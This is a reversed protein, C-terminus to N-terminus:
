HKCKLCEKRSIRYIRYYNQNSQKYTVRYFNLRKGKMCLFSDKESDYTFGKKLAHNHMERLCCYDTIGLMEFGRHIAGVDYGADLAIRDICIGTDKIQSIVHKLIIDSERQNAPFCDVGTIIGHETDVTMETLYGLGKKREQHIYGCDPDTNSKVLTKEIKITVPERYGPLGSLEKDLADLYNITSQPVIATTEIKSKESINGPIFSGDSVVNDGTVIGNDICCIVIENFIDKFLTTDNFRRRRNQSFISHDPIRDMMNFGCFWRYAINLTIEEELRRESRIGYLYGVLLMKIMCIPDVSPRGKEAYYPEALHYIFTFDIARDIKKLLHNEPILEELDIITFCLQGDKKGMM